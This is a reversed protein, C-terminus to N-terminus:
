REYQFDNRDDDGARDPGAAGHDRKCETRKEELVHRKAPEFISQIELIAPAGRGPSRGSYNKIIGKKELKLLLRHSFYLLFFFAIVGVWLQGPERHASDASALLALM